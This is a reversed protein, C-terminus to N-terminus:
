EYIRIVMFNEVTIVSPVDGETHYGFFLAFKATDVTDNSNFIFSYTRLTDDIDWEVPQGDKLDKFGDAPDEIGLGIRRAETSSIRFTVLYTVGADISVDTQHLQIHWWADGITDLDAILQNDVADMTGTGVPFDFNWDDNSDFTSNNLINQEDAEVMNFYTVEVLGATDDEHIKGLFLALKASDITRDARFVYYYTVFEDTVEWEIWEGKLDAFGDATDELGLAITRPADARMTVTILYANGSIISIGDQYLQVNWFADGIDTLNMVIMDNEYAMTGQHPQLDFNWGAETTMDPNDIVSMGGETAEVVEITRTVTATNGASDTVSYTLTYIGVTETDVTGTVIIDDTLDGDEPDSATVGALPDFATGESIRLNNAGHISPYADELEEVLFSQIYVTTPEDTGAIQGMFIAYKVTTLDSQANFIYTYTEFETTLDWEVTEGKLDRFNDATDEIGLGIRKSGEARAVVTIQYSKGAEVHIGGQSLQIHWWASGLDELEAILVGDEVMMSGEGVPFDFTWGTNGLDFFPNFLEFANEKGLVVSILRNEIQTLGEHTVKYQLVFDSNNGLNTQVIGVVEISATLDTSGSMATVGALPDFSEGIQVVVDDLGSFEIDTQDLTVREIKVENIVVDTGNDDDGIRGLYLVFKATDITRDSTYIFSYTEMTDTLEFAVNGGPLMMYGDGTDEMGIGIRKGSASSAEVSFRYSEGETIMVTQHVQIQWWQTGPNTINAHLQNNTVSFTASGGPTDLTWGGTDLTFDGNYLAWPDDTEFVVTIFRNVTTTQGRSDTVSYTVAHEGLILTNVFGDVEIDATIDNGAYDTATVGELPDFTAGQMVTTNDVGSFTPAAYTRRCAALSLVLVSFLMLVLVKKV